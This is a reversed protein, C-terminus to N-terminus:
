IASKLNSIESEIESQRNCIASSIRSRPGAV